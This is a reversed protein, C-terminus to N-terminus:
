DRMVQRTRRGTGRAAGADRDRRAVRREAHAGVGAARDASRRGDVADDTQLGRVSQEAAGADNRQRQGEVGASRHRAIDRVDGIASPTM